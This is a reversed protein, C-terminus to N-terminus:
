QGTRRSLIVYDPVVLKGGRLKRERPSYDDRSFGMKEYFKLGGANRTFCTLMVKEVSPISEAVDVLYQM